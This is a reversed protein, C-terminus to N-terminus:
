CCDENGSKKEPAFKLRVLTGTDQTEGIELQWGYRRCLRRVINLGFGFGSNKTNPFAPSLPATNFLDVGQEHVTLCIRGESTYHFANAVLNNMVIRFVPAPAPIVPDHPILIKTQIPKEKFLSAQEKFVEKALAAAYCTQHGEDKERALWLFTEITAAMRENAREIRRLRRKLKPEQYAPMATILELAGKVVTVPTRLEHSADRTFAKERDIFDRIRAMHEELTKALFGVENDEFQKSFSVSLHGPDTAAVQRALDTVPATVRQAIIGGIGAGILGVLISSFFLITRVLSEYGENVRLTGVDFFLYLFTECDPLKKVAVHFDPPGDIANPGETEYFGEPLGTIIKKLAPPMNGTGKYSQIYATFPLLTERDTKYRDLFASIENELRNEFIEDEVLNMASDIVFWYLAALIFAFVSFVFTIRSKLSKKFKM